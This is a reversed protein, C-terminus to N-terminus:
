VRRCATSRRRSRVSITTKSWRCANATTAPLLVNPERPSTAFEALLEEVPRAQIVRRNDVVGLPGAIEM